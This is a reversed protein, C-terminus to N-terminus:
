FAEKEETPYEAILEDVTVELLESVKLYVGVSPSRSGTEYLSVDCPPVNLVSAVDAQLLGRKQRWYAMGSVVTSKPIPVCRYHHPQLIHTSLLDPYARDIVTQRATNWGSIHCVVYQRGATTIAKAAKLENDTLDFANQTSVATKVELAFPHGEDDFSLIDYGPTSGKLKFHPLVLKSLTPNIESLRKQERKLIFEEGERTVLFRADKPAPSYDPAPHADFFSLPVLGPRDKLLAEVPVGLCKSLREYKGIQGYPPMTEIESLDAQTISARRALETQSLRLYARLISVTHFM